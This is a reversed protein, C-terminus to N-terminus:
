IESVGATFHRASDHTQGDTIQTDNATIEVIASDGSRAKEKIEAKKACCANASHPSKREPITPIMSFM